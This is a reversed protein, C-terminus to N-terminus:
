AIVMFILKQENIKLDDWQVQLQLLIHITEHIKKKTRNTLTLM